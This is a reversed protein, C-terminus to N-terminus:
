LALLSMADQLSAVMVDIDDALHNISEGIETGYSAVPAIGATKKIDEPRRILVPNMQNKLDAITNGLLNLSSRARNLAAPIEAMPVELGKSNVMTQMYEDRTPIPNGHSM